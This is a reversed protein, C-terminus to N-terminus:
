RIVPLVKLDMYSGAEGDVVIDFEDMYLYHFGDVYIRGDVQRIESLIDVLIPDRVGSIGIRIVGPLVMYDYVDLKSSTMDM